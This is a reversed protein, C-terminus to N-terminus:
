NVSFHRLLKVTSKLGVLNSSKGLVIPQRQRLQLVVKLPPLGDNDMIVYKDTTQLYILSYM